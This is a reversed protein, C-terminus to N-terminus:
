HEIPRRELYELDGGDLELDYEAPVSRSYHEGATGSRFEHECENSGCGRLHQAAIANVPVPENVNGLVGRRAVEHGNVYAIIGDDYDARLVLEGINSLNTAAFKKRFYVTSYGANYDNLFTVEGYLDPNSFGSPGMAWSSDDYGPAFWRLAGNTSPESFGKLYSWNEGSAILQVQDAQLCRALVCVFLFLRAFPM